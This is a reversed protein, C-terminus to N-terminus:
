AGKVMEGLIIGAQRMDEKVADTWTYGAKVALAPINFSGAIYATATTATTADTEDCLVANAKGAGNGLLKYKGDSERSLAAFAPLVGQGAALDVTRVIQKVSPDYIANEPTSRSVPTLLNKKAM